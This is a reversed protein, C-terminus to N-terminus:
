VLCWSCSPQYWSTSPAWSVKEFQKPSTTKRDGEAFFFEHQAPPQLGQDDKFSPVDSMVNCYVNDFEFPPFDAIDDSFINEKLDKSEGSSSDCNMQSMLSPQRVVDDLIEELSEINHSFSISDLEDISDTKMIENAEKSDIDFSNIDFACFEPFPLRNSSMSTDCSSGGQAEKMMAESYKPDNEYDNPRMAEFNVHQGDLLSEVIQDEIFTTSVTCMDNPNDLCQVRKEADMTTVSEGTQNAANFIRKDCDSLVYMTNADCTSKVDNDTHVLPKKTPVSTANDYNILSMASSQRFFNELTENQVNNLFSINEADICDLTKTIENIGEAKLSNKLQTDHDVEANSGIEFSNIDFMCSESSDNPISTECNNRRQQEKMTIDSYKVANGYDNTRTNDLAVHQSYLPSEVIKDGVFTTSVTCMDNSKELRQVGKDVHATVVREGIHNVVYVHKNRENLMYIINTDCASKVDNGAQNFANYSDQAKAALVDNTTLVFPKCDIKTCCNPCENVQHCVKQKIIETIQSSHDNISKLKKIILHNIDNMDVAVSDCCKHSKQMASCNTSTPLEQKFSHQDVISSQCTKFLPMTEMASDEQSTLAQKGQMISNSYSDTANGATYTLHSLVYNEMKNERSSNATVKLENTNQEFLKPTKSYLANYDHQMENEKVFEPCVNSIPSNTMSTHGNKQLNTCNTDNLSSRSNISAYNQRSDRVKNDSVPKRELRVKDDSNKSNNNSSCAQQIDADMLRGSDKPTNIHKQLKHKKKAIKLYELKQKTKKRKVKYPVNIEKDGTLDIIITKGPKKRMKKLPKLSKAGKKQLYTEDMSKNKDVGPIVNRNQLAGVHNKNM